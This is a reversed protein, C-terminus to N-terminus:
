SLRLRGTGAESRRRQRAVAELESALADREEPTLVDYPDDFALADINTVNPLISRSQADGSPGIPAAVAGISNTM